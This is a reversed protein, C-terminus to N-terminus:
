EEQDTRHSRFNRFFIFGEQRHCRKLEDETWDGSKNEKLTNALATSCSIRPGIQVWVGRKRLYSRFERFKDKDVLNFDDETYGEFYDFYVKWLNDNKFEYNNWDKMKKEILTLIEAAVFIHDITNGFINGVTNSGAGSSKSM